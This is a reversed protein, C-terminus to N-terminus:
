AQEEKINKFTIRLSMGPTGLVELQGQIQDTLGRILNLGLTNGEGFFLLDPVGIGNDAVCLSFTDNIGPEFRIAINGKKKDPFAYKIANTVAENIILGAPIALGLDLEVPRLHLEFQIDDGVEFSEKLYGILEEIYAQMEITALNESQYLKQHVISMAYMRRQSSRIADIADTNSLYNTQMNLLSMTTQMNNKVRHHIERLLWEKEDLLVKQQQNLDQLCINQSNIEAQKAQLIINSHKKLRFSNYVLAIIILLVIISTLTLNKLLRLRQLATKNAQDKRELFVISKEKKVTEYQIQLEAVQKSKTANYLSDQLSKYQEFHGIALFYNGAASDIKFNSLQIRGLGIPSLPRQGSRIFRKLCDDAKRYLQHKIYFEAIDNYDEEYNMAEIFADEIFMQDDIRIAELYYKEAKDFENLANYCYGLAKNLERDKLLVVNPLTKIKKQLVFLAEASRGLVILVRVLALYISYDSIQGSQQYSLSKHYSALSNDYMRLDFYTQGLEYYLYSVQGSDAPAKLQKIAELRYYLETHQHGRAKSLDAMSGYVSVLDNNPIMKQHAIIYLFEAQAQPFRALDIDHEAIEQLTKLEHAVDHLQVFIRKASELAARRTKINITDNTPICQGFRLWTFAEEQKNNKAKHYNIVQMFFFSGRSVDHQELYSDGILKLTENVWNDAHLLRSLQLATNFVTMASDMDTKFAGPKIVYHYGLELQFKIRNTDAKTNSISKLIERPERDGRPLSQAFVM